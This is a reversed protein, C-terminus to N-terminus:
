LRFQTQFEAVKGKGPRSEKRGSHGLIGHCNDGVPDPDNQLLELPPSSEHAISRLPSPSLTIGDTFVIVRSSNFALSSPPSLKLRTLQKSSQINRAFRIGWEM